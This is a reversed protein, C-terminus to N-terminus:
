LMDNEAPWQRVRECEAAWKLGLDNAIQQFEPDDRIGDLMPDWQMYWGAIYPTPSRHQLDKLIEMARSKEGKFAYILALDFESNGPQAWPRNLRILSKCIEEARDFYYDAEEPYGALEFAYGIRHLRNHSIRHLANYIDLSEKYYKLGEEFDGITICSEAFYSLVLPNTSDYAYARSLWYHQDVPNENFIGNAVYYILSDQTLDVYEETISREQEVMGTLMYTQIIVTLIYSLEPGRVLSAAKQYYQLVKIYDTGTYMNGLGLYAEWYSPNLRIATQCDKEAKERNGTEWYYAGRIYYAEPLQRDIDLAKNAWIYVSDFAHDELYGDSYIVMIEGRVSLRSYLTLAV